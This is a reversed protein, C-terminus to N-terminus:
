PGILSRKHHIQSSHSLTPDRTREIIRRRGCTGRVCRGEVIKECINNTINFLLMLCFLPSHVILVVRVQNSSSIATGEHGYLNYLSSTTIIILHQVLIIIYLPLDRLSLSSVTYRAGRLCREKKYSYSYRTNSTPVYTISLRTTIIVTFINNNHKGDSLTYHQELLRSCYCFTLSSSERLVFARCDYISSPLSRTRASNREYSHAHEVSVEACHSVM